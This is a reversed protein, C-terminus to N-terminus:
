VLEYRQYIKSLLPYLVMSALATYIAYPLIVKLMMLLGFNQGSLMLILSYVLEGLLGLVLTVVGVTLINHEFLYEFVVSALIVIYLYMLTNVGFIKGFLLDVVAGTVLALLAGKEKGHFAGFCVLAALILDPKVGFISIYEVFTTQLVYIVAFVMITAFVGM